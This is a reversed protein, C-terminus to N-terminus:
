ESVYLSVRSQIIKAAEEASKQGQFFPETEETLINLLTYDHEFFMRYSNDIIRLVAQKDEETFGEYGETREKTYQNINYHVKEDPDTVYDINAQLGRELADKRAPFLSGLPSNYGQILNPPNPQQYEESMLYELFAWAGEKNGSAANMGYLQDYYTMSYKLSGDATPMGAIEYSDGFAGVINRYGYMGSDMGFNVMLSLYTKGRVLEATTASEDVAEYSYGSLAKLDKLLDTFEGGGFSCTRDDWDIFAAMYESLESLIQAVPNQISKNLMSGPYKKGLEVYDKGSWAGDKTYGKEVVIGSCGFCPILFYLKDDVSGARWVADVVDERGVVGSSEFYPTLDELVGKKALNDANVGWYLNYLDTGQKRVIDMLFRELNSYIEIQVFYQEQAQNFLDVAKRMPSTSYVTGFTGLTVIERGEPVVQGSMPVPHANEPSGQAQPSTPNPSAPQASETGSGVGVDESNKIESNPDPNDAGCGSLCLCCIIVCAMVTRLFYRKGM